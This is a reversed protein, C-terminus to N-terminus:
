ESVFHVDHRYMVTNVVSFGAVLGGSASVSLISDGMYQVTVCAGYGIGGCVESNVVVPSNSPMDGLSFFTIELAASISLGYAGGGGVTNEFKGDVLDEWTLSSVAAYGYGIGGRSGIDISIYRRLYRLLLEGMMMQGRMRDTWPNSKHDDLSPPAICLVGSSVECKYEYEDDDENDEDGNDAPDAVSNGVNGGVGGGSGGRSGSGVFSVGALSGSGGSNRQGEVILEEMPNDQGNKKVPPEPEAVFGTPDTASLPNNGVYSYRNWGQSSAPTAVLPDPSLFRQLAPDYVRGNMHILGTRDLHEHGTFGRRTSVNLDDLLAKIENDSLEGTWSVDKRAGFSEYALDLLVAGNEDTVKEISGLHDLHLYEHQVQISSTYDTTRVHAVHKDLKTKEIRQYSPDNAPLLDEYQGVYFARETQLQQNDDLWSTERYFRQGNPGYQFRDRATPTSTDASSGLTIQEPLHRSNWRIWKDDGYAADYREIAGNADFMLTNDIGAIAVQVSANPGFAAEQGNQYSISKDGGHTSSKSIINGLNDYVNSLSRNPLDNISVDTFTLRNLGDYSFVEEKKNGNLNAIRSELTGNSRWQYTNNQLQASKVTSINELRGTLPNYTRNTIVGNGYVEQEVQGFANITNFTKLPNTGDTIVELYGQPSYQYHAIAGSPYTVNNLRGYGDYDYSHTYSRSLGGAVLDTDISNLKTNARYHYEERFIESGAVSYTRYDLQGKANLPDYHWQAIGDEHTQKSIRGLLDYQYSITQSKNDTQDLLQGLGNYTTGVTGHSIDIIGTQFGATDRVFETNKVASGDLKVSKLQGSGYYAYDVSVAKDLVDDVVQLLDGTIGFLSHKTQYSQSGDSSRVQETTVQKIQRDALVALYQYTVTTGDPKILSDLRQRIDYHYLTGTPASEHTFYPLTEQELRGQADYFWDKAVRSTGDFAEHETRVLRNLNDYFQDQLPTVPSSTRARYAITLGGRLPCSLFACDTIETNFTVNDPNTRSTERGFPDYAITTQRNNADTITAPLGFRADYTVSMGHMLANAINQPYRGDSVSNISTTRDDVGAGSVTESTTNGLADYDFDTVVEYRADGPFRTLVDVRNTNAYPQATFSQVRDPSGTIDGAYDSVTQSAPFQLLWNGSATRNYFTVANSKARAIGSLSTISYEGWKAGNSISASEAVKAISTMGNILDGVVQYNASQFNVGLEVGDELIYAVQAAAHPLHTTAGQATLAAQAYQTIQRTLLETHTGYIADYQRIQAVQGAFPFDLRFQRYTTIGSVMDQERQAYFGLFGWHKTSEIGRGQYAYSTTHDGGIGNSRHLGTVVYRYEGNVPLLLQTDTPLSGAGFPQELMDAATGTDKMLTYDFRTHKMGDDVLEVATIFEDANSSASEMWDLELPSLCQYSVGNAEYGCLQIKDLRKWGLVTTEPILRYERLRTNDLYVNVHHLLVLQGQEFGTTGIPMPALDDRTAYSFEIRADQSNGYLIELPYNIGNVFDAHYSYALSNGFADEVESISWGYYPSQGQANDIRVRSGNSTGYTAISGDPRKVEFWPNEITGLLSVKAFNDRLARYVAGPQWHTGSVLVLPEGDLCLSDSNDLVIQDTAPRNVVCRRIESFGTMQWGYGLVEEPLSQVKLRRHHGSSYILQIEPQLGNVGPALQLPVTVLADGTSLVRTDHPVFGAASASESSVVPAIGELNHVDIVSSVIWNDNCADENCAKLRYQYQGAIQGRPAFSTANASINIDNAPTDAPWAQSNRKEQLRYYTVTGGNNRWTIDFDGFESVAPVSTFSPASPKPLPVNVSVQKPTNVPGCGASNCAFVRFFFDGDSYDGGSLNSSSVTPSSLGTAAHTYNTGDTSSEISYTITGSGAAAGWSLTFPVATVLGSTPQTFAGPAGPVRRVLISASLSEQSYRTYSGVTVYSRVKYRYSGDAMGPPCSSPFTTCGTPRNVYRVSTSAMDHIPTGAWSGDKEEFVQYGTFPNGSATAWNVRYIGEKDLSFSSVYSYSVSGPTPPLLAVDVTPSARWGSCQSYSGAQSCARVQYAYSGNAVSMSKTTATSNHIDSGFAGGNVKQNLEYRSVVGSSAGWSLTFAGDPDQTSFNQFTDPVGPARAVNVTATATDTHLNCDIPEGPPKLCFEKEWYVKYLYVGTSKGSYAKTKVTSDSIAFSDTLVGDKYEYYTGPGNYTVTYAGDPSNAESVAVNVDAALAGSAVMTLALISVAKLWGQVICGM